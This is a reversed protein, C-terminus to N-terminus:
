GIEMSFFLNCSTLLSFPSICFSVQKRHTIMDLFSIAVPVTCLTGGSRRFARVASLVTSASHSIIVGSARLSHIQQTSSALFDCVLRLLISLTLESSLSPFFRGHQQGPQGCLLLFHSSDCINCFCTFPIFYCFGGCQWCRM